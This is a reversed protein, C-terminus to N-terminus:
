APQTPAALKQERVAPAPGRITLTRLLVWTMVILWLLFAVAELYFSAVGTWAIPGRMFFASFMGPIYLTASWLNYYGVWRPVLPSERPDTLIAVGLCLVQFIFASTPVVMILWGIDNFLQVESPPRDTRYAATMWFMAMMSFWVVNVVACGFQTSALASPRGAIRRMLRSIVACFPAFLTGAVLMLISALIIGGQHERYQEAIEEASRSPAPPPIFRACFVLSVLFVVLMAAGAWVLAREERVEASDPTM